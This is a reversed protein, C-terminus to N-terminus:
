LSSLWVGFITLFISVIWARQTIKPEEWGSKLLFYHFPAVPFIRRNFIKKSFIQLASSLFEIFFFGGLVFLAIVKGTLLGVVALTAGFGMAGVDGLFIRAPYVNFYLFAILAGIWIGIMIALPTDLTTLSIALLGFLAILLVGMSLGDVGDTINVANAFITITLTAVPIFFVGLDVTQLFPINIISINMVSYMYFSAAFSFILQLILKHGSKLGAFGFQDKDLQFFKVIDDYLGLLSFSILTLFIVLLEQTLPYNGSIYTDISNLFAFAAPFLILLIIILLLGGGEPTRAKSRIHTAAVNKVNTSVATRTKFFQMKYLLDIFPVMLLSTLIFSVIIFTTVLILTM